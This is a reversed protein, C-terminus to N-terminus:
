GRLTGASVQGILKRYPLQQDRLNMHAIHGITEFSSPVEIGDPLLRTLVDDASRHAYDTEVSHTTVEAEGSEVLARVAAPLDGVAASTGPALLLLRYRPDGQSDAVIPRVKRFKLMQPKLAKQLPGCQKCPVRLAVLETTDTFQSRDLSSLGGDDSGATGGREALTARGCMM